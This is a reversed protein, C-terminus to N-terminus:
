AIASSVRDAQIAWYVDAAGAGTVTVTVAGAAVAVTVDWTAAGGDEVTHPSTVAGVLAITGDKKKTTFIRTYGAGLNGSYNGAAVYLSVTEITNDTPTWTLGVVPTANSTKFGVAATTTRSPLLDLKSKDAASMFGNAGTTAVAHLTGGGRAGHAHTHTARALQTSSGEANTSDTLDVAAATKIDHKHNADSFNGSAGTVAASKDLDVPAGVTTQHVHNSLAVSDGSGASGASGAPLAVPAATKIDHKHDIPSAQTSVGASNAARTVQAMGASGGFNVNVVDAGVLIGTGAGVNLTTSTFSLGNGAVVSGVPGASELAGLRRSMQQLGMQAHDYAREHVEPSFDGQSTFDVAQTLAVNREIYIIDAATPATPFNASPVIITVTGVDGGGGTVNYDVGRTLLTLAGGGLRVNVDLDDADQFVFPTAFAVAVNDGVYTVASAESPVTLLCRWDPARRRAVM